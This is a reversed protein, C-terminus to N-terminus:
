VVISRVNGCHLGVGQFATVQPSSTSCFGAACHRGCAPCEVCCNRAPDDKCDIHSACPKLGVCQNPVCGRKCLAEDYSDCSASCPNTCGVDPQGTTPSNSPMVTVVVGEDTPDSLTSKTQEGVKGTNLVDDSGMDRTTTSTRRGNLDDKKMDQAEAESYDNGYDDGQDKDDNDDDEYQEISSCNYASIKEEAEIVETDFYECRCVTEGIDNWKATSPEWRVGHCYKALQRSEFKGFLDGLEEKAAEIDNYEVIEQIFKLPFESSHLVVFGNDDDVCIETIWGSTAMLVKNTAFSHAPTDSTWAWCKFEVDRDDNSPFNTAIHQCMIKNEGFCFSMSSVVPHVDKEDLLVIETTSVDAGPEDPMTRLSISRRGGREVRRYVLEQKTQASCCGESMPMSVTCPAELYFFRRRDVSATDVDCGITNRMPCGESCPKARCEDVDHASAPPEECKYACPPPSCVAEVDVRDPSLGQDELAKKLAREVVDAGGGGGIDGKNVGSLFLSGSHVMAASCPVFSLLIVCLSTSAAVAAM